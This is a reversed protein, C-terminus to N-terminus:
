HHILQLSDKDDITEICSSGFGQCDGQGQGEYLCLTKTSDAELNM